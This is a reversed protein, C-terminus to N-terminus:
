SGIILRDISVEPIMWRFPLAGLVVLEDIRNYWPWKKGSIRNRVLNYLLTPYFVFNPVGMARSIKTCSCVIYDGISVILEGIFLVTRVVIRIAVQFYFCLQAILLPLKLSSESEVQNQIYSIGFIIYILVFM